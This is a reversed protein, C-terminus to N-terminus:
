EKGRDIVEAIRNYVHTGDSSGDFEQIPKGAMMADALAVRRPVPIDILEQPYNKRLEALVESDHRTKPDYLTPIIGAIRLQPNARRKVRTVTRQLLQLGHYALYHTQVPILVGSSASLASVTLIGLSPPCDILIYDVRGLIPEIKSKLIMNNGVPDAMLEVEAGSLDLNTPVLGVGSVPDYVLTDGISVDDDRLVHYAHKQLSMPDIGFSLTLHGQPDLDILLVKRGLLALAAGLNRTTTTKGVGGKQNAVAYVETMTVMGVVLKVTFLCM